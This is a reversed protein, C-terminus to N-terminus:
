LLRYQNKVFLYIFSGLTTINSHLHKATLLNEEWKRPPSPLGTQAMALNIIILLHALLMQVIMIQRKEMFELM